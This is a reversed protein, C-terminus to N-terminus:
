GEGGNGFSVREHIAWGSGGGPRALWRREHLAGTLARAVFRTAAAPFRARDLGPGDHLVRVPAQGEGLEAAGRHPQLERGQWRGARSWTRGSAFELATLVVTESPLHVRGWRLRRMGLLRPPRRLDVWDCYGTGRLERGAARGVVSARPILVRWEMARDPSEGPPRWPSLAAQYHLELDANPLDLRVGWGEGVSDPDFEWAQPQAHQVERSGDPGYREVGASAFRAGWVELWTLYVITVTGDDSVVDAYLKRFRLSM